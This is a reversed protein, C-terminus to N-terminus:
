MERNLPVRVSPVMRTVGVTTSTRPSAGITATSGCTPPDVDGSRRSGSGRLPWRGGSLVEEPEPVAADAEEGPAGVELRGAAALLAVPRGPSPRSRSRARGPGRRRSCAPTRRRAPGRAARSPRAARRRDEGGVVTEAMWVIFTARAARCRHKRLVQRHDPEVVDGLGREGIRRERGDVLRDLLHAVFGRASRMRSISWGVCRDLADSAASPARPGATTGPRRSWPCVHPPVSILFPTMFDPDSDPCLDWSPHPLLSHVHSVCQCPKEHQQRHERQYDDGAAVVAGIGGGRRRLGRRRGPSLASRGRSHRGGRGRGLCWRLRDGDVPPVDLVVVGPM